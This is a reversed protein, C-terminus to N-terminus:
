HNELDTGAEERGSECRTRRVIGAPFSSVGSGGTVIGMRSVLTVQVGSTVQDDALPSRYSDDSRALIQEANQMRQSCQFCKLFKWPVERCCSTSLALVQRKAFSNSADPRRHPQVWFASSEFRTVRHAIGHGQITIDVRVQFQPHVGGANPLIAQSAHEADVFSGQAANHVPEAFWGAIDALVECFDQLAIGIPEKVFHLYAIFNGEGIGPKGHM